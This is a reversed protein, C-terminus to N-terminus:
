MQTYKKIVLNMRLKGTLFIHKLVTKSIYKVKSSITFSCKIDVIM